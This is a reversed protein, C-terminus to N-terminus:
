FGLIDLVSQKFDKNLQFSSRDIADIIDEKSLEKKITEIEWDDALISEITIYFHKNKTDIWNYGIRKFRKGSNYAEQITM